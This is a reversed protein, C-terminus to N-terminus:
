QEVTSRTSCWIRRVGVWPYNMNTKNTDYHCNPSMETKHEAATQVLDPKVSM